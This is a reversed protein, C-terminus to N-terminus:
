TYLASNVDINTVHDEPYFLTTSIEQADLQAPRDFKKILDKYQVIYKVTFKFNIKTLAAADSYDSLADNADKGIFQHHTNFESPYILFHIDEKYEPANAVPTWRKVDEDNVVARKSDGPTYHGSVKNIINKEERKNARLYHYKINKWYQIDGLYARNGLQNVTKTSSYSDVVSAMLVDNNASDLSTPVIDAYLEYDCGLVTYYTYMKKYWEQMFTQPQLAAPITTPFNYKFKTWRTESPADGRGYLSYTNINNAYTPEDTATSFAAPSPIKSNYLGTVYRAGLYTGNPPPASILTILPNVHSNARFTFDLARYSDLVASFYFTLPMITTHTDQLTYSPKSYTIPTEGNGKTNGTGESSRMRADGDADQQDDRNMNEVSNLNPFSGKLKPRKVDPSIGEDLPRKTREPTEYNSVAQKIHLFTNAGYKVIREKLSAPAVKQLAEFFKKDAWNYKLYPNINNDMMDQYDDDHQECLTDVLHQPIGKGGLGCFNSFIGKYLLKNNSGRLM